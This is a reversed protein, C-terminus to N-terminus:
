VQGEGLSLFKAEPGKENSTVTCVCGLTSNRGLGLSFSHLHLNRLFSCHYSLFFLSLSVPFSVMGACPM